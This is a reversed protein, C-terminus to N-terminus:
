NWGLLYAVGAGLVAVLLGIAILGLPKEYWSKGSQASQTQVIRTRDNSSYNGAAAINVTANESTQIVGHNTVDGGAEIFVGGGRKTAELIRQQQRISWENQARHFRSGPVHTNEADRIIKLLEEDSLGSTDMNTSTDIIGLQQIEIESRYKAVIDQEGKNRFGSSALGRRAMEERFKELEAECERLKQTQWVKFQEPNM